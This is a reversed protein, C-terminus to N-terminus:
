GYLAKRKRHMATLSVSSQIFTSSKLPWALIQASNQILLNALHWMISAKIM